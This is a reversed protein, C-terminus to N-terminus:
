GLFGNLWYTKDEYDHDSDDNDTNKKNFNYDYNTIASPNGCVKCQCIITPMMLNHIFSCSDLLCGKKLPCPTFKLIANSAPEEHSWQIFPEGENLTHWRHDVLDLSNVVKVYLVESILDFPIAM